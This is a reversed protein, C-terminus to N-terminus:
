DSLRTRSKTVWHVTARWAGRGHFKGPLFVPTHQWKRRLSRVQTEQMATSNKVMEVVLSAQIPYKNNNMRETTDLEKHDRVRWAEKDKVIEQLKSLGMDMSDIIGALWRMRQKGRRRRGEIKGLMLTKELSGTRGMLLGFYQLKLMLGELSHEPHIEKPNVPKIEKIPSLSGSLFWSPMRPLIVSDNFSEWTGKPLWPKGLLAYLIGKLCQRQSLWM